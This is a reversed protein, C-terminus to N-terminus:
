LLANLERWRQQRAAEVAKQISEEYYAMDVGSFLTPYDTVGNNWGYEDVDNKYFDGTLPSYLKLTYKKTSTGIEKRFLSPRGRAPPRNRM